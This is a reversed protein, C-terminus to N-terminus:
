ALGVRVFAKLGVAIPTPCVLVRVNVILLVAPVGALVPSVNVSVSGAFTTIAPVGFTTFLQPPVGVIVAVGPLLLKTTPPPPTFAAAPTDDHVIETSTVLL